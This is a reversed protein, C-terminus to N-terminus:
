AGMLAAAAYLDAAGGDNRVLIAPIGVAETGAVDAARSDGVMWVRSPRGSHAIRARGLWMGPRFALTGFAEPHPKEYGTAASGTARDRAQAM